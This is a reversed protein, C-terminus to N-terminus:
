KSEGEIETVVFVDAIVGGINLPEGDTYYFINRDAEDEVGDWSGLSVRRIQIVDPEDVWHGQVTVVKNEVKM